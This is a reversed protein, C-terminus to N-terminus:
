SIRRLTEIPNKQFEEKVIAFHDIEVLSKNEQELELIKQELEQIKINTINDHTRKERVSDIKWITESPLLKKILKQIYLQDCKSLKDIVDDIDITNTTKTMCECILFFNILDCQPLKIFISCDYNNLIAKALCDNNFNMNISYRAFKTFYIQGDCIMSDSCLINAFEEIAEHNHVGKYDLSVLLYRIDIIAGNLIKKMYQHVKYPENYLITHTANVLEGNKISVCNSRTTNYLLRNTKNLTVHYRKPECKDSNVIANDSRSLTNLLFKLTYESEDDLDNSSLFESIKCIAAKRDFITQLETILANM